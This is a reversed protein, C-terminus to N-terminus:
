SHLVLLNHQRVRERFVRLGRNRADGKGRMVVVVGRRSMVTVRVLRPRAKEQVYVVWVDGLRM